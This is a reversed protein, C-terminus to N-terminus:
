PGYRRQWVALYAWLFAAVMYGSPALLIAWRLGYHDSIVGWAEAGLISAIIGSALLSTSAASTRLRPPVTEVVLTTLSGV